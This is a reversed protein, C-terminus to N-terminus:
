YIVVPGFVEGTFIPQTICNQDLLHDQPYYFQQLMEAPHAGFEGHVEGAGAYVFAFPGSLAIAPGESAPLTVWWTGHGGALLCTNGGFPVDADGYSYVYRFPGPQGTLHRGDLTGHCSMTGESTSTGHSPTILWGPSARELVHFSCVASPRGVNAAHATSGSLVM